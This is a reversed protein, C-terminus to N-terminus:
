KLDDTRKDFRQWFQKDCQAMCNSFVRYSGGWSGGGFHLIYYPSVGYRVRCDQECSERDTAPDGWQQPELNPLVSWTDVSGPQEQGCASYAAAFFALAALPIALALTTKYM